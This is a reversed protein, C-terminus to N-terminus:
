NRPMGLEAILGGEPRNRLTLSGGHAQAIDRAISLGLGTGGTDRSRSSELRFFPEFVAELQDEPIGPGDDSVSVLLAAGDDVRIAARTGFKLANDILNTLCRKLAMPKAKVPNHARGDLAVDSGVEKYGAVMAELLANVDTPEFKEDDDLGKFLALAGRVLGEMEDLDSAFRARVQADDLSEVRLRFRTLPTRLDHSMAALVRTRSDLYRLLRDQMTNFARTAERIERVGEEPLPPHRVNRGMGEAAVALKSLPRTIGRTVLFLVGVLVLTLVGLQALLLWPLAADLPPAAVRYILTDGGPTVLTLDLATTGHEERRRTVLHIVNKGSEGIRDVKVRYGEGLRDYIEAVFARQIEAIEGATLRRGPYSEPEMRIGPEQELSAVYAVRDAPAKTQYERTLFEIRHASDGVSGVRISIERRDRMVLTVMVILTAGLVLLLSAALRGFITSPLMRMM